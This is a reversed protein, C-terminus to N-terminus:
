KANKELYNPDKNIKDLLEKMLKNKENQEDCFKIVVDDVGDKAHYNNDDDITYLNSEGVEDILDALKIYDKEELM